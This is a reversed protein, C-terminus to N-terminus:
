CTTLCATISNSCSPKVETVTFSFDTPLKLSSLLLTENVSLPESTRHICSHNLLCVYMYMYRCYTGAWKKLAALNGMHPSTEEVSELGPPCMIRGEGDVGWWLGVRVEGGTVLVGVEPVSHLMEGACLASFLVCKGICICM